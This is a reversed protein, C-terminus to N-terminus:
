LKLPPSWRQNLLLVLFFDRHCSVYTNYLLLLLKIAKKLCSNKMFGQAIPHVIRPNGSRCSRSIKRMKQFTTVPNEAGGVGVYETHVSTEQKWPLVAMFQFLVNVELRHQPISHTSSYRLQEVCRWSTCLWLKEKEGWVFVSELKSLNTSTKRITHHMCHYPPLM